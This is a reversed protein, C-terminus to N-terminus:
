HNLLHGLKLAISKFRLRVVIVLRILTNKLANVARSTNTAKEAYASWWFGDGAVSLIYGTTLEKFEWSDM